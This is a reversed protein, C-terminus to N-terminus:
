AAPNAPEPRRWGHEMRIRHIASLGIGRHRECIRGPGLRACDECQVAPTANEIARRRAIHQCQDTIWTLTLKDLRRADLAFDVVARVDDASFRALGDAWTSEIAERRGPTLTAWRGREILLAVLALTETRTM